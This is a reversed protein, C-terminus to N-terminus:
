KKFRAAIDGLFSKSAPPSPVAGKGSSAATEDWWEVVGPEIGTLKVLVPILREAVFPRGPDVSGKLMLDVQRVYNEAGRIMTPVLVVAAVPPLASQCAEDDIRDLVEDVVARSREDPADIMFTLSLYRMGPVASKPKSIRCLGAVGGAQFEFFALMQEHQYLDVFEQIIDIPKEAM